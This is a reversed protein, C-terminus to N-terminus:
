AKKWDSRLLRYHYWCQGRFRTNSEDIADGCKEFGNKALVRSSAPNSALVRSRLLRLNLESFALHVAQRTTETMIGRSWYDVALWYALEATRTRRDGKKLDIVGVPQGNHLIMFTSRRGARIDDTAKGIWKTVGDEPYPFPINCTAAVGPHSVHKQIFLAYRESIEKLEIRNM